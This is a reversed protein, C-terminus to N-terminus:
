SSFFSMEVLVGNTALAAQTLTLTQYTPQHTVLLPSGDRDTTHTAGGDEKFVTDKYSGMGSNWPIWSPGRAGQVIPNQRGRCLPLDGIGELDDGEMPKRQRKSYCMRTAASHVGASKGRSRCAPGWARVVAGRHLARGARVRGPGCM